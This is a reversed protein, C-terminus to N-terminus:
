LIGRLVHQRAFALSWFVERTSDITSVEAGDGVSAGSNLSPPPLTIPGTYFSLTVLQNMVQLQSSTIPTSEYIGPAGETPPAATQGKVPM